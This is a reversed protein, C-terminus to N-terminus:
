RLAAIGMYPFTTVLRVGVLPCVWSFSTEIEGSFRRCLSQFLPLGQKCSAKLRSNRLELRIDEQLQDLSFLTPVLFYTAQSYPKFHLVCFPFSRELVFQHVM